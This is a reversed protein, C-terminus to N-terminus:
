EEKSVYLYVNHGAGDKCKLDSLPYSAKELNDSPVVCAYTRLTLLACTATPDLNSIDTTDCHAYIKHGDPSLIYDVATHTGTGPTKRMLWGFSPFRLYTNIRIGWEIASRTCLRKDATACRYNPAPMNGRALAGVGGVRTAPAGNILFISYPLLAEASAELGRVPM